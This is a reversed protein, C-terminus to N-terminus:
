VITNELYIQEEHFEGLKLDFKTIAIKRKSLGEIKRRLQQPV